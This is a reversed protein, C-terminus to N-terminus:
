FTSCASLYARICSRSASAARSRNPPRAPHGGSVASTVFPEHPATKLVGAEQRLQDMITAMVAPADADYDIGVVFDQRIFGDRTFNTVSEKLLM